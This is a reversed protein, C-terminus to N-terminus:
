KVYNKRWNQGIRIRKWVGDLEDEIRNTRGMSMTNCRLGIKYIVMEM